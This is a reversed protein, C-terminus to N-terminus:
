TANMGRANIKLPFSNMLNPNSAFQNQDIYLTFLNKFLDLTKNFFHSLYYARM